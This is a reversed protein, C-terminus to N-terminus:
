NRVEGKIGNKMISKEKLVMFLAAALMIVGHGADGFMVGFLFPFTIITYPATHLYLSLFLILPRCLSRSASSPTPRQTFISLFLFLILLRCVCFVLLHLHHLASPSSLYISISLVPLHHHHLTSHSSLSFSLLDASSLCFVLIHLRHLASPSSLCFPFLDASSLSLM